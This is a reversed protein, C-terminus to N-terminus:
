SHHVLTGVLFSDTATSLPLIVAISKNFGYFKAAMAFCGIMEQPCPKTQIPHRRGYSTTKKNVSLTGRNTIIEKDDM